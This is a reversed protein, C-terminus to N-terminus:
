RLRGQGLRTQTVEPKILGVIVGAGYSLHLVSLALATLGPNSARNRSAAIGLVLYFAVLSRLAWPARGTARLVIAALWATTMAAPMASRKPFLGHRRGVFSKWLGYQFYQVAVGRIRERPRYVVEAEPVLLIRWGQESALMSLHDDQNRALITEFGGLERLDNTRWVAFPHHPLETGADRANRFGRGVGIPHTVAAAIASAVPGSAQAVFRGGAAVKEASSALGRCAEIYNPSLSTRGDLRIFWPCTSAALAANLAHPVIREANSVVAFRRWPHENAFRECVERTGDVSMGDYVMVEIDGPGVSQRVISELALGVTSAEDRVPLVVTVDGLGARTSM